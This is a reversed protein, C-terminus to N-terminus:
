PKSQSNILKRFIREVIDTNQLRNKDYILVIVGFRSTQQKNVVQKSTKMVDRLDKSRLIRELEEFIFNQSRKAAPRCKYVTKDHKSEPLAM